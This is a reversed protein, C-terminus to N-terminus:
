VYGAPPRHTNPKTTRKVNAINDFMRAYVEDTNLSTFANGRKVAYARPTFHASQRYHKVTHVTHAVTHAVRSAYGRARTHSAGAIITRAILEMADSPLAGYGILKGKYYAAFDGRSPIYVAECETAITRQAWYAWLHDRSQITGIPAYSYHKTLM